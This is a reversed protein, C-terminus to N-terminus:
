SRVPRGAADCLPAGGRPLAAVRAEADRMATPQVSAPGGYPHDLDDVVLLAFAFVAATGVAVALQTGRRVHPHAFAAMGLVMAAVTVLLLIKVVEPVSPRAEALRGRRAEIRQADDTLLSPLVLHNAPTRAATRLADTVWNSAEDAIPSIAGNHRQVEWEPGAVARAYCRLRGAVMASSAPTLLEADQAEAVVAGAEDTAKDGAAEYSTACVVLVFALLLTALTLVPIFLEAVPLGEAHSRSRDDGRRGLVRRQLFYGAVLAVALVILIVV